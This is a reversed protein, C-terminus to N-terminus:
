RPYLLTCKIPEKFIVTIERISIRTSTQRSPILLTRQTLPHFPPYFCHNWLLWSDETERWGYSCSDDGPPKTGMCIITQVCCGLGSNHEKWARQPLRLVLIDSCGRYKDKEATPQLQWHYCRHLSESHLIFWLHYFGRLFPLKDPEGWVRATTRETLSKKLCSFSFM